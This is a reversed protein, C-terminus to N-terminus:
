GSDVGDSKLGRRVSEGFAAERYVMRLVVEAVCEGESCIAVGSIDVGFMHDVAHGTTAASCDKETEDVILGTSLCERVETCFDDAEGAGL